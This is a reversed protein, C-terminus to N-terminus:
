RASYYLLDDESATTKEEVVANNSQIPDALYARDSFTVKIEKDEYTQVGSKRLLDLVEKLNNIEGVM